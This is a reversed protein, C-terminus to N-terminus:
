RTKKQCCRCVMGFLVFAGLVDLVSHQKLFVTSLIIACMLLFSFCLLGKRTRFVASKSISAHVALSAYVHMSPFVNTPTDIRWLFATLGAFINKEADIPVRLALGNPFVTCILLSFLMGPILLRCLTYFAPVDKFFFFFFTGLLYGYWLFYPLIFYECFPIRDDPPFHIWFRTTVTQELLFFWGLYVPWFLLLWGHPYTPRVSEM